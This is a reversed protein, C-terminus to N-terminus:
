KKLKTERTPNIVFAPKKVMGSEGHEAQYIKGGKRLFENIQDPIDACWVPLDRSYSDSLTHYPKGKIM